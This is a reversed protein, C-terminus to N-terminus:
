PWVERTLLKQRLYRAELEQGIGEGLLARMNIGAVYDSLQLLNNRHSDQQRVSKIARGSQTSRAVSRLRRRLAERSERGGRRDFLITAEVLHPLANEIAKGVVQEYIGNTNGLAAPVLNRRSKDFALIHTKYDFGSVATLFEERIRKANKAYHFEYGPSLRLEQRLQDIRHDCRLAESDDEFTVLAVM